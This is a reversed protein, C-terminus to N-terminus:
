EKSHLGITNGETDQLISVFGFEGIPAKFKIIKGGAKEVRNEETICDNSTFYVVTNNEHAVYNEKEVLAGTANTGNNEFPFTSQKGWEIPLDTLKIDFVIEYFKKARELNSVNIDFWCVPNITNM